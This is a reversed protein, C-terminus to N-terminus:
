LGGRYLNTAYLGELFIGGDPSIAISATGSGSYIEAEDYMAPPPGHYVVTQWEEGQMDAYDFVLYVVSTGVPFKTIATGGPTDTMRVNTLEGAYVTNVLLTNLLLALGVAWHIFRKM